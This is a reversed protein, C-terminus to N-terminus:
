REVAKASTCRMIKAPGGSRAGFERCGTEGCIEWGGSTAGSQALALASQPPLHPTYRWFGDRLVAGDPVEMGAGSGKVRAAVLQLGAPTLRWDEEWRVKEISHMWSLTFLSTAVVIAKGGAYLCVSM